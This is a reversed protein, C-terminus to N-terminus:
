KSPGEQAERERELLERSNDFAGEGADDMFRKKLISFRLGLKADRLKSDFYKTYFWQIISNIFSM